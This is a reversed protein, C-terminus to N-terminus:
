QPKPLPVSRVIFPVGASVNGRHVQTPTYQLLRAFKSETYYARGHFLVCSSAGLMGSALITSTASGVAPTVRSLMIASMNGTLNVTDNESFLLTNKGIVRLGDVRNLVRRFHVDDVTEPSGDPNLAIRVLYNVPDVKSVYMTKGDLAIGNITLKSPGAAFYRPAALWVSLTSAGARLELIRPSLSDTVFLNGRRDLAMDNCFGGGPLPYSNRPAGTSLDFSKLASPRRPAVSYGFDSSCNWLLGRREDVVLGQSSEIGNSGSPVFVRAHTEGPLLRAISGQRFSSVYLTGNRAVAISEPYFDNPLAFETVASPSDAAVSVQLLLSFTLASVAGVALLRSSLSRLKSENQM